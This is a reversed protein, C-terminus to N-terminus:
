REDEDTLAAASFGREGKRESSLSPRHEAIISHHEFGQIVGDENM